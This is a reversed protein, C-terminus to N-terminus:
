VVVVERIKWVLQFAAPMGTFYTHQTDKNYKLMVDGARHLIYLM